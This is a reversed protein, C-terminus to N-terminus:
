SYVIWRVLLGLNCTCTHNYDAQTGSNKEKKCPRHAFGGHTFLHPAMINYIELITIVPLLSKCSFFKTNRFLHFDLFKSLRRCFCIAKMIHIRNAICYFIVPVNHNACLSKRFVLMEHKGPVNRKNQFFIGTSHFRNLCSADQILFVVIMFTKTVGHCFTSICSFTVSNGHM